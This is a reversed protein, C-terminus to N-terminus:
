DVRSGGQEEWLNGLERKPVPKKANSQKAEALSIISMDTTLRLRAYSYADGPLLKSSFYRSTV